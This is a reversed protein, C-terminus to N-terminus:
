PQKEFDGFAASVEKSAAEAKAAGDRVFLVTAFGLVATVANTVDTSVGFIVLLTGALTGLGSWFTRTSYIPTKM